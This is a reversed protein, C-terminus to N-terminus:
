NRSEEWEYTDTVRSFGYYSFIMSLANDANDATMNTPAFEGFGASRIQDNTAIIQRRRLYLKTGNDLTALYHM